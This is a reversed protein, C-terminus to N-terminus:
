RPQRGSDRSCCGGPGVTSLESFVAARYTTISRDLSAKGSNLDDPADLAAAGLVLGISIAPALRLSVDADIGGGGTMHRSPVVNGGEPVSAMVASPSIGLTLGRSAPQREDTDPSPEARAVATVLLAVLAIATALPRKMPCGARAVHTGNAGNLFIAINAHARPGTARIAIDTAYYAQRM